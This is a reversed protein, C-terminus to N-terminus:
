GFGVLGFCLYAFLSIVTSFSYFRVLIPIFRRSKGRGSRENGSSEVSAATATAATAVEVVEVVEAVEAAPQSNAIPVRRNSNFTCTEEIGIGIGIDIGNGNGNGIGDSVGVGVGGLNSHSM